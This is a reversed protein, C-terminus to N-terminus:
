DYGYQRAIDGCIENIISQEQQSLNSQYTPAKITAAKHKITASDIPLNCVDFLQALQREPQACLDEYKIIHMHSPLTLNHAQLTLAHAYLAKWQYAYYRVHDGAQQAKRIAEDIDTDDTLILARQPGFEFHGSAIMQRSIQNNEDAAQVFRKHQRILSEVHSVPHRIPIIFCADPLLKHLYGMRTLNYNAKALYREGDRIYLIKKIHNKYCEAFKPNITTDDLVNSGGKHLRDFFAIWLPEELAEPSQRTIKIGDGHAREKPREERKPMYRQVTHWWYPTVAFPFDGYCHSATEPHSALVELLITSGSRAMGCIYIPQKITIKDLEGALINNELAALKKWLSPMRLALGALLHASSSVSIKPHNGM